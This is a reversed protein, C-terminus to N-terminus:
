RRHIINPSHSHTNMTWFFNDAWSSEMLVINRNHFKEPTYKKGHDAFSLFFVKQLSLFFFSFFLSLLFEFHKLFSLLMSHSFAADLLLLMWFWISISICHKFRLFYRVDIDASQVIQNIIEYFVVVTDIVLRSIRHINWVNQYTERKNIKKGHTHHLQQSKTTHREDRFKEVSFCRKLCNWM